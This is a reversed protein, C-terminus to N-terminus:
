ADYQFSPLGSLEQQLSDFSQTIGLLTPLVIQEVAIWRAAEEPSPNRREYLCERMERAVPVLKQLLDQQQNVINMAKRLLPRFHEAM